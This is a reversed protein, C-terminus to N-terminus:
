AEVPEAMLKKALEARAETLRVLLQGQESQLYEAYADVKYQIEEFRKAAKEMTSTRTTEDWSAVAANLEDILTSLGAQVAEKVSRNGEPTGCPVPFRSLRGGLAGLFRDVKDTFSRHCEPTFYACGKRNISYLDAHKAFMRQVIRTIDQSNRTQMAHALLDRARLELAYNEPCEVSGTETNLEVKCEYDFALKDGAVERHTCQFTIIGASSTLKDIQRQEKLHKCARTFAARTGIEKADDPDLDASALAAQVQSYSVDVGEIDWSIVEGLLEHSM